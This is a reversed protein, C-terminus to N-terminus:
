SATRRMPVGARKARLSALQEPLKTRLSGPGLRWARAPPSSSLRVVAKTLWRDPFEDSYLLRTTHPVMPSVGTRNHRLDIRADPAPVSM